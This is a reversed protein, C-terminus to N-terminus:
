EGAAGAWSDLRRFTLIALHRQGGAPKGYLRDGLTEFGAAKFKGILADRIGASHTEIMYLGILRLTDAPVQVLAEEAGECDLKAIDAGSNNIVNELNRIRFLTVHKGESDVGLSADLDEYHVPVVEDRPGVGEQHIEANVGNASCNIEIYKHHEAVPEYIIVKNAGRRTFLVATEGVCGGIDLVTKHSCDADYIDDLDEALPHLLPFTGVITVDDKTCRVTEGDTELSFGRRCLDRATCYEPWTVTARSGNRFVIRRTGGLVKLAVAAWFNTTTRISLGLGKLV